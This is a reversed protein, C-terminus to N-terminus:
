RWWRRCVMLFKMGLCVAPCRHEGSDTLRLRKLTPRIVQTPRPLDLALHSLPILDDSLTPVTTGVEAAPATRFM